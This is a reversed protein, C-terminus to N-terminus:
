INVQGKSSYVHVWVQGVSLIVQRPCTSVTKRVRIQYLTFTNPGSHWLLWSGMVRLMWRCQIRSGVWAWVSSNESTNGAFTQRWQPGCIVSILVSFSPSWLSTRCGEDTKRLRKQGKGRQNRGYASRLLSLRECSVIRFIAWDPCPNDRLSLM